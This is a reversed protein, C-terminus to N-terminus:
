TYEEFIMRICRMFIKLPFISVNNAKIKRIIKDRNKEIFRCLFITKM